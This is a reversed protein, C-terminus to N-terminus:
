SHESRSQTPAGDASQEEIEDVNAPWAYKVALLGLMGAGISICVHWALGIPIFGFVLPEHTRWWWFDQHALVLLFFFLYILKRMVINHAREPM